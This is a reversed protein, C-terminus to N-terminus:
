TAAPSRSAFIDIVTVIVESKETGAQDEQDVPVTRAFLASSKQAPRIAHGQQTPRRFGLGPM